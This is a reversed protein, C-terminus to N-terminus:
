TGKDPNRSLYQRVENILKTNDWPKYLLEHVVGHELSAQVVDFDSYGTLIFRITEPQNDKVFHMLEVGSMEPMRYDSIILDPQWSALLEIAEKGSNATRLEFGEGRLIRRLANLVGVEDDVLLIRNSNM